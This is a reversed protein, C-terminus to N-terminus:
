CLLNTVNVAIIVIDGFVEAFKDEKYKEVVLESFKVETTKEEINDFIADKNKLKDKM